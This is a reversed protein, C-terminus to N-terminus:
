LRGWLSFALNMANFLAHLTVVALYSHTRYYVYGLILALPVLPLSDPFEHVGSFLIAVGPIVWAAPLFSQLWGQVIVRYQLEEALPATVVVAFAIWAVVTPSPHDSLMRLLPHQTEPDRWALTLAVVAYVPLLSAVFGMAGIRVQKRWDALGIGFDSLRASRRLLLLVLLLAVSLLNVLCNEQLLQLAADPAPEASEGAAVPQASAIQSYVALGVILLTVGVVIPNWLPKSRPAMPLPRTGKSLSRVVYVWVTGSIAAIILLIPIFATIELHSGGLRTARRVASASVSAV